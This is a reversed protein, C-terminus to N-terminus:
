YSHGIGPMDQGPRYLLKAEKELRAAKGWPRLSPFARDMTVANFVLIGLFQALALEVTCGRSTEWEPLLAIADSTTLCAIDSWMVHILHAKGDSTDPEAMGNVNYGIAQVIRAPSFVQHGAAKWRAEAEDFAEFNWGPLGRM